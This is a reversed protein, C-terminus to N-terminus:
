IVYKYELGKSIHITSLTVSNNPVKKKTEFVEEDKINKLHNVFGSLKNDLNQYDIVLDRFNEYYDVEEDSVSITVLYNIFDIDKSIKELLDILSNNLSFNLWKNFINLTKKDKETASNKIKEFLNKGDKLSLKLLEDNSYDFIESHLLAILSAERNTNDLFNFLNFLLNFCISTTFGVKEKFFLPINYKSFINKYEIMKTSNRVLVAYDSYKNGKEIGKLIESAINEISQVRYLKKDDQEM